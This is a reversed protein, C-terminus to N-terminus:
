ETRLGSITESEVVQVFSEGNHEYNIIIHRDPNEQVDSLLVELIIRGDDTWEFGEIEETMGIDDRAYVGSKKDPAAGFFEYAIRDIDFTVEEDNAKM